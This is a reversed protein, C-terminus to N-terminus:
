DVSTDEALIRISAIFGGVEREGYLVPVPHGQMVTTSAGGFGSSPRNGDPDESEMEPVPMLLSAAGGLLLGTGVGQLIPAFPAGFPTFSLGILAVGAIMQFVDGGAGMVKPMIHIVKATTTYQLDSEGINNEKSIKELFVAFRIGDSEAQLMFKKFEPLQCALAHAAEKPTEVDLEFYKGFRKALVGHLEITKM